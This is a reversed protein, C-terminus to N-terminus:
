IDSNSDITSSDTETSMADEGTETMPRPPTASVDRNGADNTARPAPELLAAPDM